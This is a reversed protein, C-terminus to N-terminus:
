AFVKAVAAVAAAPDPQQFINRGISAGRAGAKRAAALDLLLGKM